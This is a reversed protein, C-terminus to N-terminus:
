FSMFLGGNVPINAGTIFGADEAALFAVTRAIEDPRGLRGVPVKDVIGARIEDPMAMVMATEPVAAGPDPRIALTRKGTM